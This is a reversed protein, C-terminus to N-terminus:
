TESADVSGGGLASHPYHEKCMKELTYRLKRSEYAQENMFSLFEKREARVDLRISYVIEALHRLYDQNDLGRSIEGQKISRLLMTLLWEELGNAFGRQAQCAQLDLFGIILSGILGFLSSSFAVGMGGLPAALGDKLDRFLDSVSTSETHLSQIVTGVSAVTGTLGWFTGLLGLFILLASIYRVVSHLEEFRMEMAEIMLPVKDLTTFPQASLNQLMIVVPLLPKPVASFGQKVEKLRTSNVFNVTSRLETIQRVTIIVGFVCIMAILGNFWPNSMFALLLHTRLVFFILGVIIGFACVRVLFVPATALPSQKYISDM